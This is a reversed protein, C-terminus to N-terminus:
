LYVKNYGDKKEIDTIFAVFVTKKGSSYIEEFGSNREGTYYGFSWVVGLFLFLFLLLSNSKKNTCKASVYVIITGVLITLASLWLREEALRYTLEGLVFMIGCMLLPRRM